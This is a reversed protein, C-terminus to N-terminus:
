ALQVAAFYLWGFRFNTKAFDLRWRRGTKVLRAVARVLYRILPRLEHRRASKPLLGYQVARLLLQALQGCVYFAQNARFKRCPTHHLDLDILPGKFANEQGQKGRHQRVLEDLPLDDRSVLIVTYAPFLQGQGDTRVRRVAVYSQEEWGAPRHRVLTAEEDLGIDTWAADPLEDIGDLGPARKRADTLSVSYDWGRERCYAVLSWLTEADSAGRARRKVSVSSLMAPLGLRDAMRALVAWGGNGTLRADTFDPEVKM